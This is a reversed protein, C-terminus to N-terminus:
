HVQPSLSSLPFLDLSKIVGQDKKLLLAHGGNRSLQGIARQEGISLLQYDGQTGYSNSSYAPNTANREAELFELLSNSKIDNNRKKLRKNSDFYSVWPRVDTSFFSQVGVIFDNDLYTIM